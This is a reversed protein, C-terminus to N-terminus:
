WETHSYEFAIPKRYRSGRGGYGRGEEGEEEGSGRNPNDEKVRRGNGPAENRSALTADEKVRDGIEPIEKKSPLGMDEEFRPDIKIWPTRNKLKRQHDVNLVCGSAQYMLERFEDSERVRCKKGASELHSVIATATEFADRCSCCRLSGGKHAVRIHNALIKASKPKIRCDPKIPCKFTGLISNYFAAGNFRPDDPNTIRQGERHIDFVNLKQSLDGVQDSHNQYQARSEDKVLPFDDLRFYAKNAAPSIDPRTVPIRPNDYREIPQAAVLDAFPSDAWSNTEKHAAPMNSWDGLPPENLTQLSQKMHFHRNRRNAWVSAPIRKCRGKEIHGIYTGASFYTEGCGKCELYQAVPHEDRKHDLLDQQQGFKGACEDCSWHYEKNMHLILDKISDGRVKCGHRSHFCNRRDPDFLPDPDVEWESKKSLFSSSM